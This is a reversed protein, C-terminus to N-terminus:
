SPIRNGYAPPLCARDVLILGQRCTCVNRLCSSGNSCFFVDDDCYAGPPSVICAYNAEDLFMSKNM